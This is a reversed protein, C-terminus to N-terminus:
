YQRWTSGNSYLSISNAVLIVGSVVSTGNINGTIYINGSSANTIILEQKPLTAANHLTITSGAGTEEVFKDGTTTTYNGATVLLAILQPSGLSAIVTGTISSSFTVTFANISSHTITTPIFVAGTGDLCQVVPYAGFGHTVTVTTVASFAQSVYANSVGSPTTWNLQGNLYQSANNSGKPVFGHKSTTANNTTIDTLSIDGEVVASWSFPGSPNGHLVQNVTGQNAFDAILSLVPNTSIANGNVTYANVTSAAIYGAPNASDYPTYGIKSIITANTEDGTNIGSIDQSEYSDIIYFTSLNHYNAASITLCYILAVSSDTYIGSSIWAGTSTNLSVTVQTGGITTPTEFTVKNSGNIKSFVANGSLGFENQIITAGTPATITGSTGSVITYYTVKYENSELTSLRVPISPDGGTSYIRKYKLSTQGM